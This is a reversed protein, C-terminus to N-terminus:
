TKSKTEEKYVVDVFTPFRPAQGRAGGAGAPPNDNTATKIEELSKGQKVMAIVSARKAEAAKARQQIQARMQIEGHGPVFADANLGGIGKATTIWGASSGNKEAHVLPDGPGIIDGTFVVKQNPLFVVLDGSTHAAAWHLLEVKVGDLTLAEKNKSVVQTPLKDKPPAGRGGAAVAAEMEKKDNEHAIITIGAPFAGLGGVHDIDSHTLIVHTVPKNTVKSVEALLAKGGDLTTKTDIVIVGNTGIIIGSNGGGGEVYYINPKVQKTMLPQAQQQGFGAVVFVLVGILATVWNSANLRKYMQVVREKDKLASNVVIELCLFDRATM